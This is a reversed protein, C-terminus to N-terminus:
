TLTEGDRGAQRGQARGLGGLANGRTLLVVIVLGDLLILAPVLVSLPDILSKYAQRHVTTPVHGQELAGTLRAFLSEHGGAFDVWYTGGSYAGVIRDDDPLITANSVQGKEIAGLFQDLRLQHGPSAPRAWVVAVLLYMAVLFPLALLCLVLPQREGARQSVDAGHRDKRRRVNM